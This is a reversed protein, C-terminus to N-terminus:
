KARGARQADRRTKRDAYREYGGEPCKVLTDPHPEAIFEVPVAGAKIALARKRKQCDYHPFTGNDQFWERRLGIKKAMAHLEDLDTATLHGGGTWKGWGDPFQDAFVTM